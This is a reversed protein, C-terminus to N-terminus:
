KYEEVKDAERVEEGKIKPVIEEAQPIDQRLNAENTFLHERGEGEAPTRPIKPRSKLESPM